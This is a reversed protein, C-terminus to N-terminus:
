GGVFINPSGNVIRGTQGCGQCVTSDGLRAVPKGNAFVNSSGASTIFTGGHVCRCAGSDNMRHAPKRNFFVNPSGAQCAGNRSHPCCKHGQDCIGNSTDDMRAAAPM